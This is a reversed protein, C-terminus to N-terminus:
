YLEWTYQGNCHRWLPHSLTEFWWRWSQKSLPKNLCLEFFVHFSPTVAPFEGPVPSNGACIALLASFTEIQHRWWTMSSVELTTMMHHCIPSVKTHTWYNTVRMVCFKYGTALYINSHQFLVPNLLPCNMQSHRRYGNQRPRFTNIVVIVNGNWATPTAAPIRARVINIWDKFFLEAESDNITDM